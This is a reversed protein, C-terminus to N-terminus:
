KDLKSIELMKSMLEQKRLSILEDIKKPSNNNIKIEAIKKNTIDNTIPANLQIKDYELMSKSIDTEGINTYHDSISTIENKNFSLEDFLSKINPNVVNNKNINNTTQNFFKKNIIWEIAEKGFLPKSLNQAVIAPIYQIYPPIKDANTEFSILQCEDFLNEKQITNLLKICNECKDSYFVFFKM